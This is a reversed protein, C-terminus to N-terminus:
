GILDLYKNYLDLYKNYLDLYINYMDLYKNYLDLYKNYLDMYKNYLYLYINYLDLYKNYVHGHEHSSGDIFAVRFTFCESGFLFEVGLFTLFPSRTQAPDTYHYQQLALDM